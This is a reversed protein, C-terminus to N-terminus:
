PVSETKKIIVTKLQLVIAKGRYTPKQQLVAPILRSCARVEERKVGWARELGGRLGPQAGQTMHAAKESGATQM